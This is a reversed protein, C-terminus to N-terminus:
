LTVRRWLSDKPVRVDQFVVQATSQSLGMKEIDSTEYGQDRNVM